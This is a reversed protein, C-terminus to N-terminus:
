IKKFQDLKNMYIAMFIWFDVFCGIKKIIKKRQFCNKSFFMVPSRRYNITKFGNKSEKHLKAKLLIPRVGPVPNPHKLESSEPCLTHTYDIIIHCLLWCQSHKIQIQLLLNYISLGKHEGATSHFFDDLDSKYLECNVNEVSIWNMGFLSNPFSHHSSNSSILTFLEMYWVRAMIVWKQICTVFNSLLVFDPEM